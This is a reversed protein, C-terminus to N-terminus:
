PGRWPHRARTCLQLQERSARVSFMHMVQLAAGSPSPATQAAWTLRTSAHLMACVTVFAKDPQHLQEV